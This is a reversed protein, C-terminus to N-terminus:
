HPIFNSLRHCLSRAVFIDGLELTLWPRGSFGLAVGSPGSCVEREAHFEQNRKPLNKDQLGADDDNEEEMDAIVPRLSSTVFFCGDKCRRVAELAVNKREFEVVGEGKSKGRDDVFVLCREIDGFIGFAHYLLENSVWPGLNSVRVAGQHPAFRVRMPRGSQERGDLATKAKEADARTEMRMFAFHKDGNFFSEGVAGYQGLIEKLQEETVEPALNGVYLRARGNFKKEATDLPPLEFTPGQVAALKEFIRDRGGGMPGMPGGPPGGMGPGGPGGHGGGRNMGGGGRNM